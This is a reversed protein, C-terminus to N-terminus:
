HFVISADTQTDHNIQMLFEFYVYLPFPFGSLLFHPSPRSLLSLPGLSLPPLVPLPSTSQLLPKWSGLSLANETEENETGCGELGQSYEELFNNRNKLRDPSDKEIAGAQGRSVFFSRPPRPDRNCDLRPPALVRHAHDLRSPRPVLGFLAPESCWHPAPDPSWAGVLVCIEVSLRAPLSM